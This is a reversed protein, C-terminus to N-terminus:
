IRSTNQLGDRPAPTCVCRVDRHTGNQLLPPLLPITHPKSASVQNTLNMLSDNLKDESTHDIKELKKYVSKSQQVKKEVAKIQVILLVFPIYLFLAVSDM